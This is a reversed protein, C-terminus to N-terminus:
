GDAVASGSDAESRRSCGTHGRRPRGVVVEPGGRDLVMPVAMIAVAAWVRRPFDAMSPRDVTVSRDALGSRNETRRTSGGDLRRGDRGADRQAPTTSDAPTAAVVM